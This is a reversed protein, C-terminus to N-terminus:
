RSEVQKKEIENQAVVLAEELAADWKDMDIDERFAGRMYGLALDVVRGLSAGVNANYTTLDHENAKSRKELQALLDKIISAQVKISDLDKAKQLEFVRNRLVILLAQESEKETLWDSARLLERTRVMVRAPTLIGGIERSIDEPSMDRAAGMILQDDISLERGFNSSVVEEMRASDLAQVFFIGGLGM